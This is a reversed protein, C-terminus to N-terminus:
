SLHTLTQFIISLCILQGMCIVPLAYNPFVVVTSRNFARRWDNLLEVQSSTTYKRSRYALANEHIIWILPISNFPEQLFSHCSFDNMHSSYYIVVEFHMSYLTPMDLDIHVKVLCVNM